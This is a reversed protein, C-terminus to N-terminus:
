SRALRNPKNSELLTRWGLKKMHKRSKKEPVLYGLPRAMTYGVVSLPFTKDSMIVILKM